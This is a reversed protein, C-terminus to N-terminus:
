IDQNLWERLKQFARARHSIQNKQEEGMEAYTQEAGDPQFIPDFGFGTEGRPSLTIQGSAEGVFVHHEQGDYLDIADRATAARKDETALMRLIGAAGVTQIFWKILPGPLNKWAEIELAVDEVIVTKQVFKYAAEAKAEVIEQLDLSQIEPIDLDISEIKMGLIGEVERLKHQNGTVFVFDLM